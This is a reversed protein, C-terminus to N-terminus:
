ALVRPKASGGPCLVFTKWCCSKEPKLAAAMNAAEEDWVTRHLSCPHAWNNKWRPFQYASLFNIRPKKLGNGPSVYNILSGGNELVKKLTTHSGTPQHQRNGSIGRERNMSIKVCLPANEKLTTPVTNQMEEMKQTTCLYM